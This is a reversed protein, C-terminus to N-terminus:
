FAYQFATLSTLEDEPFAHEMYNSYGHYFMDVTEQRLQALYDARMAAVPQLLSFGLWALAIAVLMMITDSRKSPRQRPQLVM